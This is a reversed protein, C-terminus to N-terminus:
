FLYKTFNITEKEMVLTALPSWAAAVADCLKVWRGLLRIGSSRFSAAVEDQGLM